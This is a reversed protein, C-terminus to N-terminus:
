REHSELIRSATEPIFFGTRDNKKFYTRIQGSKIKFPVCEGFQEKVYKCANM